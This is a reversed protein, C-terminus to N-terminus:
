LEAILTELDTVVDTMTPRENPDQHWMREMLNVPEAGWHKRLGTVPPRRDWPYKQQIESTLM